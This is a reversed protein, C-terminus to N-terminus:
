DKNGHRAIRAELKLSGDDNTKAKYIVHSSIVNLNESVNIVPVKRVTKLLKTKENPYTNWVPHPPLGEAQHLM